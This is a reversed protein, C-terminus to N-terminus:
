GFLVLFGNQLHGHLASLSLSLSVNGERKVFEWYLDNCDSDDSM